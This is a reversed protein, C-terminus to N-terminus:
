AGSVEVKTSYLAALRQGAAVVAGDDVQEWQV